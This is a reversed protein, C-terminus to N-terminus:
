REGGTSVDHIAEWIRAATFPPDIRTVGLPRLADHIANAIAAPVGINGAEGVGKAGLANAASPVPASTLRVPPIDSARPVQYDMLSGTLLQGGEYVIREMLAEGVGQALGGVLQGEVLRPNLVRGADDVWHIPGLTPMGTEVDIEVTAAVAGSAWAEAPATYRHDIELTEGRETAAAALGSWSLGAGASSVFGGPALGVEDPGCQLAEAARARALGLFLDCAEAMATAGIATSRSALAGIAEPLLGTDGARVEIADPALHLRGALLRATASLRGQGQATSGTVAAIRGDPRLAIRATEFGAGCPEAYLALGLGAIRGDARAADRAARLAALDATADLRDLLGPFDSADLWEGTPTRAPLAARPIANRRRLDLADIGTAAAVEEVLREMLMAAEPRGAGRYINMAAGGGMRARAKIDIAAIGYPGPLIRAANRTPVAASFPMWSGLPFDVDACLGIFRGEADVALRGSLTGGRGHSAALFDESRRATWRVARGTRLAALAVLVDEPYISAKGGFAGGVDPAIVRLRDPSLGLIRALDDRARHPTQTSLWVRLEGNAQPVALAARPELTFPSVRPHAIRASVVHVAAAFAADVDGAAYDFSLADAGEGAEEEIELVIAEALDAARERDPHLIAAVPEGAAAVRGAALIPSPHPVMGPVLPNVGARGLGELDAATLILTAGSAASVDLSVIRGPGADARLVHLFLAEPGGLDDVFRGAGRLLPADERRTEPAIPDPM